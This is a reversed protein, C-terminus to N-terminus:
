GADRIHRTAILLEILEATIWALRRTLGLAKWYDGPMEETWLSRAREVLQLLDDGPPFRPDAVSINGLQMLAGRLREGLEDVQDAPPTQDGLVRDLDDFVADAELPDWARLKALVTALLASENDRAQHSENTSVDNERALAIPSM